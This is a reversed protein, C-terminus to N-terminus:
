RSVPDPLEFKVPPEELHLSDPDALDADSGAPFELTVESQGQPVRGGESGSPSTYLYNAKIEARDELVLVFNQPSPKWSSQAHVAVTLAYGYDGSLFQGRVVSKVRMTLKDDEFTEGVAITESPFFFNLISPVAFFTVIVGVIVGLIGGIWLCGTRAPDPEPVTDDVRIRTPQPEPQTM